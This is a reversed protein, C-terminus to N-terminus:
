HLQQAGGGPPLNIYRMKLPRAYSSSVVGYTINIGNLTSPAWLCDRVLSEIDYTFFYLATCIKGVYFSLFFSSPM